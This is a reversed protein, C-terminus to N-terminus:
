FLGLLKATLALSGASGAAGLGQAVPSPTFMPQTTTTTGGGTNGMILAAYRRLREMPEDLVSQQRGERQAGVAGLQGIDAYDQGALQPAILSARQQNGREAEYQNFAFPALANTMGAGLTGAHAPSFSRGARSFMANVSPEVQARVANSVAGFNPNGANLFDGRLTALTQDSAARDLPSGSLARASAANQALLTEPSFRAVTSRPNRFQSSAQNFVDRLFPQQVSWPEAKAISETNTRSDEM